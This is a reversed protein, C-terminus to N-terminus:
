QAPQYRLTLMYNRGPQNYYAATEYHKNFVNNASLQLRWDKHMAYTVRLDTLAYGGLRYNNALDDYRDGAVYISGGFSLDGMQRDADIRGSQKARRPLWNSHYSGNTENRPDLWTATGSVNWEAVTTHATAEVGRIRAREINNASGYPYLPPNPTNDYAILDNIKNQFANLSWGGWSHTGRLGLEFSRSSEPRLTSKGYYPYYLENFTPAKFATGYSATLRLEQTFDWGWLLSGTNKGGFQSNDDRRVSAQLSQSGFTQQWQGFWGRNVRHDVVYTTNSQVKDGQVDFGLSYLGGGAGIDAQLSGLNRRTNFTSTYVNNLYNDSLDVSQALSLTFTLAKSPKYHVRTGAVQSVSDSSNSSTGDYKNHAETRFVRADADWADSFRYGGQLSLSNNRYGDRDPEYTYCGGGNPFPKGRCANIGQTQDHSAELSYWAQATRGAVGASGRLTDYSGVGFSFNPVFAGAPRRTFIQIVGGIAESGYLSSFPGRVIEIREIQEVPIDQIAPLGLTASGIKIGDVLVLVHDAESGRLFLSTPKGPGGNNAISMGPTGRLLDQVSSPQLREIDSRDIVTIAALTSSQTQETRTATVVVSTLDNAADAAFAPAFVSLLAVALASRRVLLVHSHM